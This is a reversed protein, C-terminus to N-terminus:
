GKLKYMIDKLELEKQLESVKTNEYIGIFEIGMLIAFNKVEELTVDYSMVTHHAGGALIWSETGVEFSPKLKWMTSAVPLNPMNEIPKIAECEACIIRFRDGLDVMTVQIAEGAKSDFTLRAPPNKGGIGLPMVKIDAKTESITPCVELMHAGLIYKEDNTFHYTYDEMFSTGLGKDEGMTKLITVMAATKWDGEGGYGYGESMLDQTAIGPLQEMGYLDQFTNTFAWAERKQLFKRMAVQVKAQYKVAEIDETKLNYKENYQRFQEEVEEETVNEIYRVLDGVANTNISWGLKIEAEVKDGETVAVERMNDGFRVVNLSKSKDVGKAVRMFSEVKEVFIEDKWYGTVVIRPKRMRTYIYGHERDGHASQNLNMFDMDIKDFPIEANYQTHMHLIPKTFKNLANIWMKSPSFTHMWTVVGICEEDNEAEKFLKNIEQAKTGLGLFEVNVNVKSKDSLFKSIEYSRSNIIDFIEQGYLHQTGTVLYLKQM